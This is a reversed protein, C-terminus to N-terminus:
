PYKTRHERKKLVQCRRNNASDGIDVAAFWEHNQCRHTKTWHHKMLTQGLDHNKQLIKSTYIKIKEEEGAVDGLRLWRRMGKIMKFMMDVRWTDTKLTLGKIM